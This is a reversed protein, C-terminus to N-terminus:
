WDGSASQWITMASVAATEARLIRPGLTVPHVFDLEHLRAREATSFGGEPGILISGRAGGVAKVVDFMPGARGDPGGWPADPDDGAEDCFYLPGADGWGSLINELREIELLQPVDLRETQEAAEIAIIEFRDMRLRDKQTRDTVVPCVLRAGLETAKEVILENKQRKVPAYYLSLDPCSTQPRTQEVLKLIVAKRHAEVIEGRWEGDKGNFLRVCSGTERRMVSVLYHSQERSLSIPINPDFPQGLWLRPDNSM